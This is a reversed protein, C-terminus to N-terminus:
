INYRIVSAMWKKKTHAISKNIYAERIESSAIKGNFGFGTKIKWFSKAQPNYGRDKKYWNEVEFVEVILWRYESLVYKIIKTKSESMSWTEKTAVYIWEEGLWRKYQKNINIIVFDSPLSHLKEANYLRIIEEARMLWKEICNHWWAINTLGSDLFWLTDILSGEIQYAEKENLGHRVIVHTVKWWKEQIWKIENYKDSKTETKLACNVHEFIRNWLWKWVYFPKKTLPNILLYVYYKLNQQTKEDFM